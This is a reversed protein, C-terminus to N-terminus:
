PISSGPVSPQSAAVLNPLVPALLLLFRVNCKITMLQCMGLCPPGAQNHSPISIPAQEGAQTAPSLPLRTQGNEGPKPTKACSASSKEEANRPLLVLM